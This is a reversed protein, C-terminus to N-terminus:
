PLVCIRIGVVILQTDIILILMNNVKPRIQM